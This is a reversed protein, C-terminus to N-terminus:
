VKGYRKNLRSMTKMLNNTRKHRARNAGWLTRWERDVVIGTWTNRLGYRGNEFQVIELM